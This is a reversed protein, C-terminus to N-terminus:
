RAVVGLVNLVETTVTGDVALKYDSQLKRVAEKSPEDLEGTIEGNYYGYLFLASQVQLVIRRFAKSNGPLTTLPMQASTDDSTTTDSPTVSLNSSNNNGTSSSNDAPTDYSPSIYTTNSDNTSDYSPAVYTPTAYKKRRIYTGDSTDPV